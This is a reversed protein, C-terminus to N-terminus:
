ALSGAGSVRELGASLTDIIREFGNGYNAPIDPGFDALFFRLQAHFGEVTKAETACIKSGLESERKCAEEAATDLAKAKVPDAENEVVAYDRARDFAEHMEHYLRFWENVMAPLPDNTHNVAIHAGLAVTPVALAAGTFFDRRKM